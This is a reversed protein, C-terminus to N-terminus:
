QVRAQFPFVAFAELALARQGHHIEIQITELSDVVAQPMGDAIAHEDGDRFPEALIHGGAVHQGTDTTVLENKQQRVQRVM